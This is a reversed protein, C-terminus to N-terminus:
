RAFALPLLGLAVAIAAVALPGFGRRQLVHALHRRDGAWPAHGAAIRVAVVRVLDLAPLVALPWAAPEVLVAVGLLHSGGDGLYARPEGARRLLLNWPLFGLVAGCAPSAVAAFGVGALGAATGDAHDWTNWVNCAVAAALAGLASWGAAELAPLASWTPWALLLGAVLQGALKARPSLGARRADDVVGVVLAACLATTVSAPSAFWAPLARAADTGPVGTALWALLIAVGGVPPVARRQTKRAGDAADGFGVREAVVAFAITAVFAVAAAVGVQSASM